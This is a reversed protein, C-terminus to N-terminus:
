TNNFKTLEIRDLENLMDRQFLLDDVNEIAIWRQDVNELIACMEERTITMFKKITMDSNVLKDLDIIRPGVPTCLLVRALTDADLNVATM